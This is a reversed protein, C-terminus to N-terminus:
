ILGFLGEALGACVAVLGQLGPKQGHSGTRFPLSYCLYSWGHRTTHLVRLLDSLGLEMSIAPLESHLSVEPM